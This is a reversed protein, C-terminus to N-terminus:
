LKKIKGFRERLIITGKATCTSDNCDIKVNNKLIEVGKSEYEALFLKLRKKMVKQAEKKTWTKEQFHCESQTTVQIALPLYFYSGLHFERVETDTDYNTFTKERSPLPYYHDKLVVAMKVNKKGTYKKESHALPFRDKFVLKSIAYIEGSAPVRVEETVEGADDKLTILGEILVDGKKVKDGKRVKGTGSRVIISDIVGEKAAILNCPYDPLVETEKDDLTEKVAVTLETGKRECSVWSIDSFDERIQEELDACSLASIRMGSHIGKEKLYDLLEERSHSYCGETDIKWIFRSSIFLLLISLCFAGILCKRGLYTSFLYPVGRKSLWSVQCGTKEAIDALEKAGRRSIYFSYDDKKRCLKWILIQKSTCLNLFREKAQGSVMVKCYGTLYHMLFFIM